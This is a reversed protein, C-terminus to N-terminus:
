LRMWLVRYQTGCNHVTMVHTFNYCLQASDQHIFIAQQQLNTSLHPRTTYKREITIFKTTLV